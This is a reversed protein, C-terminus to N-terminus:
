RHKRSPKVKLPGYEGALIKEHEDVARRKALVRRLVPPFTTSWSDVGYERGYQKVAANYWFVWFKPALKPDYKGQEIKKKLNKAISCRQPYLERTTEAHGDLETAASEDISAEELAEKYIKKVDKEAAGREMAADVEVLAARVDPNTAALERLRLLDIDIQRHKAM